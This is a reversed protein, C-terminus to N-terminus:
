MLTTRGGIENSTSGDPMNGDRGSQFETYIKLLKTKESASISLKSEKLSELFHSRKIIVQSRSSEIEPQVSDAQKDKTGFVAMLQQLIAVNEATRIKNREKQSNILFFEHSEEPGNIEGNAIKEDNSLKEHVAKLYANYALGQLDAGSFGETKSAIDELELNVLINMKNCICALINLRDRFDPLDCLISKDLRGPRLLASDILDPRSTAALVYVGDLGEAGDMQTLIQNVVRDTVGTSDHGRKPAISDFEDFFLICPKASQAREFLERVSQESAGIYKNLIEPGKISIFNLGCQSAIASALLTKGCGPYGYLLLGSRLRLPCSAFIPAYKTPWELTELLVRKAEEMGGIDKWQTGSKELKVGRLSSPQFGCLSAELDRSHINIEKEAEIMTHNKKCWRLSEYYMRDSLVKLDNPLYGETELVVDMLDFSLTCNLNRSLYNELIAARTAKDPVGINCYKEILHSQFFLKNFSEKSKGSILISVNTGKQSSVNRMLSILHETLQDSISSDTNEVEASLVKDLNDFILVSPQNWVAENIWRTFKPRIQETSENMLVECAVFKTFMNCEDRLRRDLVKLIASKGSGQTGHIVLGTSKFVRLHETLDSLLPDIGYLTELEASSSNKQIEWPFRTIPEGFEIKLEKISKALGSLRFWAHPDLTKKFTIIGGYPLLKPVIPVKCFNSVPYTSGKSNFFLSEAIQKSDEVQTKKPSSRSVFDIKKGKTIYPRIIVTPAKTPKCNSAPKLVVKYGLSNEVNLSIALNESLMVTNKPSESHDIFSAVIQKSELIIAVQKSKEPHKTAERSSVPSPSDNHLKSDPGAIVSVCFFECSGFTGTFEQINGYLAYENSRPDSSGVQQSTNHMSIGRKLLTPTSMKDSLSNKISKSSRANASKEEYRKPAISVEAFPDIMAFRHEAGIDKVHLKVSSTKTPYIILPQGVAVCRSQEILKSEIYAAHLEVLEWDSFTEPELMIRSSKFNQIKVNITIPENESLNLAQASLPDINMDLSSRSNMGSWGIYCQNHTKLVIEVIVEQPSVGANYLLSTVQSPLDILNNWSQRLVVKALVNEM